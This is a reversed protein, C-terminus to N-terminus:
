ASSKADDRPETDDIQIDEPRVWVVRGDAWTAMPNELANHLRRM